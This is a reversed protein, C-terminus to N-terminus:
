TFHHNWFYDSEATLGASLSEQQLHLKHIKISSM